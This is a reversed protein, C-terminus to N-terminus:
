CIQKEGEKEGERERESERDSASTQYAVGWVGELGTHRCHPSLCILIRDSRMKVWGIRSEACQALHCPWTQPRALCIRCKKKKKYFIRWRCEGSPTYLQTFYLEMSYHNHISINHSWLSSLQMTVAIECVPPPYSTGLLSVGESKWKCMWLVFTPSYCRRIHLIGPKYGDQWRCKLFLAWLNNLFM